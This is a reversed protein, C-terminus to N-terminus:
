FIDRISLFPLVRDFVVFWDLVSKESKGDKMRSRTILGECLSLSNVLTLNQHPELFIQFMKGNRNQSRPDGPVINQGAWLNGDFHLIFRKM